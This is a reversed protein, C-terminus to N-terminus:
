QIAKEISKWLLTAMNDWSFRQKQIFGKEVLRTCLGDKNEYLKRMGAAIAAIDFPDAYVAADAAIEPLSTVNSTLVPIGANFAEVVPIGFGEFVPVFVLAYAGGLAQTIEDDTLRGTFNIDAKYPSQNYTTLLASRSWLMTGAIVLKFNSGTSKKFENFALLLRVMNKRPHISGVFFFYPVGGSYKKQATIKEEPKLVRFNSNVGNPIIDIKNGPIKYLDIIDNKSFASVTAIRTAKKAFRKFFFNYYLRNKLKLDKPYHAFNLDHIVPLQVCNSMLSLFGDVSVFIDPKHKKLFLPVVLEMYFVYLLPHRFAPFIKHRATNPFDFYDENFNRDCMILFDTDPHDKIIRSITNVTFYGIGDLHKNRLIWCNVAITRKTNKNLL